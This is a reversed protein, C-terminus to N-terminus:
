GPILGALAQAAHDWDLTRACAQMRTFRERRAEDTHPLAAAIQASAQRCIETEVLDRMEMTVNQFDAKHNLAGRFSPPVRTFDLIVADRADIEKELTAACGCVSSVIPIGGYPVTELQAIGFPEYISLGFEADSGLRLDRVSSGEPTRWGSTPRGFGYQNIFVGKLAASRANFLELFKAIEVEYGMLDPWGERHLVPWGYEGEMRAIDADSRGGGILTSLLVFFGKQGTRALEEDIQYLLRVDRWIGKSIVLRTVHTMIVDPRFTFLRECYHQLRERSHLKEDYGPADVALGNPVVHIRSADMEPCLYILEERTVESVAIIGDLHVTRKILENRSYHAFSGFEEELSIGADRDLRLLNYFALDHGPHEEVVARATSVEHAYFFTKDGSRREERKAVEFALASAMGMYEHSFLVVREDRGYIAETLDILVAGIRLYQDYDRDHAFRDSAIGFHEWLQYEFTSRAASKMGAGDVALIDVEASGDGGHEARLRKRGFVVHIGFREEIPRLREGWGNVDIGDIHSFLVDADPGLRNEIPGDRDFLPTYLLTRPFAQQYVPTVALGRIVAGIGGIKQIAEHTVHIAITM